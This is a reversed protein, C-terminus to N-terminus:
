ADHRYRNVLPMRRDRGFARATIKPGPPSQRRKYESADILRLVKAATEPPLGAKVVEALSANEEVYLGVAADLLDYPPLTDQDTQNDRLEASPARTFVDPPILVKGARENCRRSLAYVMNKPIDKIVAFAGATDGYLTTYGVSTESKNGTTLALWGFKNSLAMLMMGRLRSQLNEEALGPAADGFAPALAKLMAAFPEEIALSHFRIGLNEALTKADARTEAANFRTPMTVGTVNDAGLADVALCAVLASDIGGSLGLVAKSFGSKRVYDRVALVLASYIEDLPDLDPAVSLPLATRGAKGTSLVVARGRKKAPPLDLDALLLGEEFQPARALLRGKKDLVFSGGDFVLEDQGGLLNCYAVAAGTEKVRAAATKRRLAFKGAHYPSSSLNVVLSAGGRAAEWAPGKAFWLDECITVGVRAGAVDLLLPEEGSVFYRKEDFVGYNPLLKKRYFAKTKGGYLLAAANYLRGPKGEVTGILCPLKKPLARALAALAKDCSSLFSPHLLLDEPPYGPLALEPFLLLDADADAARRAYGAMLASNGSLDGVTPNIQALALRLM